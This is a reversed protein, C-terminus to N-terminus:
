STSRHAPQNLMHNGRLFYDYAEWSATPKALPRHAEADNIHIALRASIM